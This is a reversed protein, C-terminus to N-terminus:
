GLWGRTLIESFINCLAHFVLAAGIGGRLARMWGFALAPFFVALRAPNMDVVFHVLAFLVAQAIFAKPAISAGLIRVRSKEADFLTTQIYGRFFAEEPLAVMVFQALVFSPAEPPLTFVFPLEPAHWWWFGVVFPPFVILAIGVAFATERLGDPIAKRIARGLDYLGLPGANKNDEPPSLLGGLEIGYHKLNGRALRISLILFLAAIFLNVYPGMTPNGELRTIAFCALCVTLYVVLMESVPSLRKM